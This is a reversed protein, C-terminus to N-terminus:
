NKASSKTMRSQAILILLLVGGTVCGEWQYPIDKNLNIINGIITIILAGWMSNMVKGRGGSLLTGGLVVSAIVDMQYGEGLLINGSFTRAALIAGALGACAGSLVYTLFKTKEVPIGKMISADENGGIAYCNRGFTTNKAVFAALVFLAVMIIAPVPIGLISGSAIQRYASNSIGISNGGETILLGIGTIGSMLALTVIFPQVRLKTICFGNIVGWMVGSLVAGIIMLFANDTAAGIMGAIISAFGCQSGVSLDIGGTLIVFSGGIAMIAVMSTQKVLNGFNRVSAFNEFFISSFIVIAVLAIFTSNEKVFSKVKDMKM